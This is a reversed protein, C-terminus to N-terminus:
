ERPTRVLRTRSYNIVFPYNVLDNIEFPISICIKAIANYNLVSNFRPNSIGCNIPNVQNLLGISILTLIQTYLNTSLQFNEGVIRYFIALLRDLDFNGLFNSQSKSKPTRYKKLSRTSFLKADFKAQNRSALFASILIFKSYYSLQPLTSAIHISSPIFAAFNWKNEILDKLRSDLMKWLKKSNPRDTEAAVVTHETYYPFLECCIRVFETNNQCVSNFIPWINHFFSSISQHSYISNSKEVLLRITDEKAYPPIYVQIPERVSINEMFKSLPLESILISCVNKSSFYEGMCLLISIIHSDLARLFEAKDCVIFLPRDDLEISNSILNILKSFSDIEYSYVGFSKSISDYFLRESYTELCNVYIYEFNLTRICQKVLLTKGSGSPGYVFLTNYCKASNSALLLLDILNQTVHQRGFKLLSDSHDVKPTQILNM